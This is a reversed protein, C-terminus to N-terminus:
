SLAAAATEARTRAADGPALVTVNGQQRGAGVVVFRTDPFRAADLGVAGVPAAGVAFVLDCRSTALSALYSSVAAATQPGAAALYSVQAHGKASADELGTWVPATAADTVGGPGTLLCIRRATYTRARTYPKGTAAARHHGSPWWTVAATVAGAVVALAAVVAAGTRVARRRAAGTGAQAGDTGSMTDRKTRTRGSM